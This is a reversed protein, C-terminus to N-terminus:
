CSPDYVLKFAGEAGPPVERIPVVNLDTGLAKMVNDTLLINYSKAIDEGLKSAANVESGFVDDEGIKLVLGFGIGICLLVKEEDPLTLNVKYTERQMLIACGIAAKVDEFVVLMSDGDTKLIQGNFSKIIPRSIRLNEIITQLFHLIGFKEVRRSFGTLDTFMIAFQTGFESWIQDDVDKRVFNSKTRRALLELFRDSEPTSKIFSM